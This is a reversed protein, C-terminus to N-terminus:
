TMPIPFDIIQHDFIRDAFNVNGLIFPNPQKYVTLLIIKATGFASIRKQLIPPPM